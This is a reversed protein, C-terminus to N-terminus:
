NWVHLILCVDSNFGWEDLNNMDSLSIPTISCEEVSIFNQFENYSSFIKISDPIQDPSPMPSMAILEPLNFIESLDVEIGPTKVAAIYMPSSNPSVHFLLLQNEDISLYKKMVFAVAAQSEPTFAEIFQSNTSSDSM